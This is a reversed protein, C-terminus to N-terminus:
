CYLKSLACSFDFTCSLQSQNQMKKKKFVSAFNKLWDSLVAIAYNNEAIM